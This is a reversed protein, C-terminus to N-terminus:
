EDFCNKSYGIVHRALLVKSQVQNGSLQSKQVNLFCYGVKFQSTNLRKTKPPFHCIFLAAVNAQGLFCINFEPVEQM